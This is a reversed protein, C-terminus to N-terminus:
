PASRQEHGEDASYGYVGWVAGSESSPMWRFEDGYVVNLKESDYILPMEPRISGGAEAAEISTGFNPGAEPPTRVLALYLDCGQLFEVMGEAAAVTIPRSETEASKAGRKTRGSKDWPTSLHFPFHPDSDADKPKARPSATFLEKVVKAGPGAFGVRLSSLETEETPVFNSEIDARKQHLEVLREDSGEQRAVRIKQIVEQLGDVKAVAAFSPRLPEVSLRAVYERFVELAEEYGARGSM